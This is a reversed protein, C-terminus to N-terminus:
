QATTSSNAPATTILDPDKGEEVANIKAKALALADEDPYVISLPKSSDTICYESGTVGTMTYSKFSWSPMESLQMKVLKTMQEQPINTVVVDSLSEMIGSYNTLMTVSLAKDAIAQIVKIQNRSRQFDGDAFAHRERAFILAAYGDMHNMGKKYTHTQAYSTFAYDSEVDIGGLADVLKELGTFNLRVYYDIDVEYLAELTSISCAMGNTSAHTLKDKASGSDTGDGYYLKVWLDRPTTILLIQHTEPNVTALINVDSRGKSGIKGESDTGSILVTFSVDTIEKDPVEIVVENEIEKYDLVKTDTSFSIYTEEMTTRQSENFVIADVEGLYLADVLSSWNEYEKTEVTTKLEENVHDITEKTLDTNLTGNVGYVYSGTDNVSTAKNDSLVIISMVDLETGGQTISSLMNHTVTLYYCGIAMVISLVVSIVKGIMHAKTFQSLFIYMLILFLVVIIAVVYITPLVNLFTLLGMFIGMFILTVGTLALGVTREVKKKQRLEKKSLRKGSGNRSSSNNM